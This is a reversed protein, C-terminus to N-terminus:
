ASKAKKYRKAPVIEAVIGDPARIVSCPQGEIHPLMWDGVAELYRALDIKTQAPEDKAAPWLVKDPKSITVGVVVNPGLASSGGGGAGTATGWGLGAAFGLARM